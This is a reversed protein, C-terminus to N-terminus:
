RQPIQRSERQDVATRRQQFLRQAAPLLHDAPHHISQGATVHHGASTAADKGTRLIRLKGQRAAITCRRAIEGQADGFHQLPLRIKIKIKYRSFNNLQM